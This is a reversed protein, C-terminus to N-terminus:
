GAVGRDDDSVTDAGIFFGSKILAGSAGKKGLLGSKSVFVQNSRVFNSYDAM